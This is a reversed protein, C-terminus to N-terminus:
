AKGMEGLMGNSASLAGAAPSFMQQFTNMMEKGESMMPKFTNLMTMLSKQTEILQKTDNTMATIQEPKLAKLANIVTTGADIHFGGKVDKPIQGLKFLGGSDQFTEEEQPQMVPPVGQESIGKPSSLGKPSSKDKSEYMPKSKAKKPRQTIDSGRPQVLAPDSVDFEMEADTLNANKEDDPSPGADEFAETMSHLGQIRKSIVLPSEDRFGEDNKKMVSYLINTAFLALTAVEYSESIGYAIGGVALSVLYQVFPIYFIGYIFYACFFFLATMQTQKTFKIGKM